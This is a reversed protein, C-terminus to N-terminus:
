YDSVEVKGNTITFFKEAGNANATDFRVYYREGEVLSPAKGREPYIQRYGEPVEGYTISGIDGVDLAGGKESKLQWYISAEEGLAERQKNPGRVRIARLSGNGTMTFMPPNGGEVVIKTDLECALSMTTILFLLVSIANTNLRYACM